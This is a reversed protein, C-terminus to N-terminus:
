YPIHLRKCVNDNIEVAIEDVPSAGNITIWGYQESLQLYLRRRETLYNIDVGEDPKRLFAIDAPCDIYIVLDPVPFLIKMWFSNLNNLLWDNRDTLNIAQDIMSDYFIRDSIILRKKLLRIRVKMFIQISYDMFFFGLWLLRFIPNVLLKQKKKKMESSDSNSKVVDKVATKKWRKILPRLLSPEWRSWVYDAEIGKKRINEILLKAQTTKGSGDIGILVILYGRNM